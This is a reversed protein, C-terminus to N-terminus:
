NGFKKNTGYVWGEKYDTGTNQSYTKFDNKILFEQIIKITIYTGNNFKREPSDHCTITSRRVININNFQGALLKEAAEIDVKLM